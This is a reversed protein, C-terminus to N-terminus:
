EIEKQYLDFPKYYKCLKCGNNYVLEFIQSYKREEVLYPYSVCDRRNCGNFDKKIVTPFWAM